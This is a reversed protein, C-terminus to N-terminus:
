NLGGAFEADGAQNVEIVRHDALLPALDDNAGAIIWFLARRGSGESEYLFDLRQALVTQRAAAREFVRDRQRAVADEILLRQSEVVLKHAVLNQVDDAVQREGSHGHQTVHARRAGPVPQVRHQERRQESIAVCPFHYIPNIITLFRYSQVACISEMNETTSSLRSFMQASLM